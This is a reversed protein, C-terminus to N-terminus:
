EAVIKKLLNNLSRQAKTKLALFDSANAKGAKAAAKVASVSAKSAKLFQAETKGSRLTIEDGYKQADADAKNAATVAAKGSKGIAIQKKVKKIADTVLARYDAKCDSFGFNVIQEKEEDTLDAFLGANTVGALSSFITQAASLGAANTESMQLFNVVAVTEGAPVTVNFVQLINDSLLASGVPRNIACSAGQAIHGLVPDAPTTPDESTVVWIANADYSTTGLSNGRIATNSDSGLNGGWALAVTISDATPNQLLTIDRAIGSQEKLTNFFLIKRTVNLGSMSVTETTLIQGIVTSNVSVDSLDANSSPSYMIGGVSLYAHNDYADTLSDFQGDVITLGGDSIEVDDWVWTISSDTFTIEQPLTVPAAAVTGIFALISILYKNM